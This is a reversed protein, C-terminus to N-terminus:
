ITVGGLIRIKQNTLLLIEKTMESIRSKAATEVIVVADVGALQDIATANYTVDYLTKVVIDANKKQLAEALAKMQSETDEGYNGGVFALTNIKEKETQLAISSSLTDVAEEVSLEKMGRLRGRAIVADLGRKQKAGTKRITGLDTLGYTEQYSSHNQWKGNFAYAMFLYVGYLFLLGIAGLVIMKKSVQPKAVVPVDESAEDVIGQLVNYYLRQNDTLGKEMADRATKAAVYETTQAYQLSSVKSEGVMGVSSSLEFLSYDGYAKNLTGQKENLFAKADELVNKCFDETEGVVRISVTGQDSAHDLVSAVSADNKSYFPTTSIFLKSVDGSYNEKETVYQFFEASSLLVSVAHAVQDNESVVGFVLSGEAVNTADLKMFPDNAYSTLVQNYAILTHVDEIERDTLQEEYTEATAEVTETPVQVAMTSKVYSYGGGLVAGILVVALLGRWHSLVEYMFDILDIEVERPEM